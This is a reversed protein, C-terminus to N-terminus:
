CRLGAAMAAHQSDTARLALLGNIVENFVGDGGIAIVGDLGELEEVSMGAAPHRLARTHWGCAPHRLLM